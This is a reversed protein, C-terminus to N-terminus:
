SAYKLLFFTCLKKDTVSLQYSLFNNKLSVDAIGVYHIGYYNNLIENIFNKKFSSMSHFKQYSLENILSNSTQHKPLNEILFEHFKDATVEIFTSNM